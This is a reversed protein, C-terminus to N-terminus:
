EGLDDVRPVLVLHHKQAALIQRGLPVDLQAAAKAIELRMRPGVEATGAMRLYQDDGVDDLVPLVDAGGVRTEHPVRIRAAHALRAAAGQQVGALHRDLIAYRE